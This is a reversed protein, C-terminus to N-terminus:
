EEKTQVQKRKSRSFVLAAGVLAFLIATVETSIMENWYWRLYDPSSVGPDGNVYRIGILDTEGFHGIPENRYKIECVM